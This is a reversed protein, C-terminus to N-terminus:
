TYKQACIIFSYHIIYKKLIKISLHAYYFISSDNTIKYNKTRM